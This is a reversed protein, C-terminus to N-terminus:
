IDNLFYFLLYFFWKSFIIIDFKFVLSAKCMQSAAYPIQYTVLASFCIRNSNLSQSICKREMNYSEQVHCMSSGTFLVPSRYRVCIIVSLLSIPQPPHNFTKQHTLSILRSQYKASRTTFNRPFLLTSFDRQWSM